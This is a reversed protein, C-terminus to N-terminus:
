WTLDGCIHKAKRNWRGEGVKEHKSPEMGNAGLTGDAAPAAASLCGAAAAAGCVAADVPVSTAAAADKAAAAVVACPGAVATTVRVAGEAPREAIADPGEDGTLDAPLVIHM